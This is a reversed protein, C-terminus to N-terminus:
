KRERNLKSKHRLILYDLSWHNENPDGKAGAFELMAREMLRHLREVEAKAEALERELQRAFEVDVFTEIEPHEALEADTRPTDTPTTM